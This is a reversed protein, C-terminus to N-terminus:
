VEEMKAVFIDAVSPSHIEGLAELAERDGGEFLFVKRGFVDREIIPNLAKASEVKDKGVMVEVYNQNVSEMSDNLIIKGDKVFILDTLLNEIEEIQHTTVLISREENFFDSLLQNYFNKRYLIDLGLTPEDLVLLEADIAMVLALHLQAVMGKSLAKVKAKMPIKTKSLFRLAKEKNFNPHVQNVYEIANEVVLWKPLIAVDSIFSVKQMIQHRNQDPKLGLITLDGDFSTLGLIANLITTKGAGNPGVLGVVRGRKVTFNVNDLAKHSGYSKSLGKAEILASM